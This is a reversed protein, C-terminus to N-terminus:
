KTLVRFPYFSGGFLGNLLSGATKKGVTMRPM